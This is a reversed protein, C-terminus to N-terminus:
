AATVPICSISSFNLQYDAHPIVKILHSVDSMLFVKQGSFRNIIYVPMQAPDQGHFDTMNRQLARNETAGDCLRAGTVFGICHLAQM